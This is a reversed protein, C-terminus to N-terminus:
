YGREVDVVAILADGAVFRHLNERLLVDRQEQTGATYASIHPTIIVNPLKWLASSAPLPEPDVVDLAAGAIKHAALAAILDATV